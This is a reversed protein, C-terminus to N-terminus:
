SKNQYVSRFFYLVYAGPMVDKKAHEQFLKTLHNFVVLQMRWINKVPSKLIQSSTGSSGSVLWNMFKSKHYPNFCCSALWIWPCIKSKNIVRLISDTKDSTHTLGPRESWKSTEQLHLRSICLGGSWHFVKVVRLRFTTSKLIKRWSIVWVRESISKSFSLTSTQTCFTHIQTLQDEKVFMSRCLRTTNKNSWICGSKISLNLLCFTIYSFKFVFPTPWFQFSVTLRITFLPLRDFTHDLFCFRAVVKSGNSLASTILLAKEM